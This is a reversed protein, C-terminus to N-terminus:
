LDSVMTLIPRGSFISSKKVVLEEIAQLSSLVIISQGIIDLHVVDGSCTQSCPRYPCNAPLAMGYKKALDTYYLWSNFLQIHRANGLLFEGPPGPPLYKAKRRSGVALLLALCVVAAAVLTPTM